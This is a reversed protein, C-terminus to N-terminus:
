PAEVVLEPPQPQPLASVDIDTDDLILAETEWGERIDSGDIMMEEAEDPDLPLATIEASLLSLKEPDIQLLLHEHKNGPREYIYYTNGDLMKKGAAGYEHQILYSTAGYRINSRLVYDRGGLRIDVIRGTSVAVFAAIEGYDCKKLKVGMNSVEKDFPIEGWAAVLEEETDGLAVGNYSFDEDTIEGPAAEALAAMMLLVLLALGLRKMLKSVEDEHFM